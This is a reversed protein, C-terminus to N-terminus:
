GRGSPGTVWFILGRLWRGPEQRSGLLIGAFYIREPNKVGLIFPCPPLLSSSDIVPLPIIFTLAAFVYKTSRMGSSIQPSQMYSVVSNELLGLAGSDM